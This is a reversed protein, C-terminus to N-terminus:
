APPQGSPEDSPHAAGAPKVPESEQRHPEPRALAELRARAARRGLKRAAVLAAKSRDRPKSRGTEWASVAGASAGLLAAFAERSLGLRRRQARILRPSLRAREVEERPASPPTRLREALDSKLVAIERELRLSTRKQGAAARKLRAVERHLPLLLARQSRRALRDIEQRLIKSLDAM